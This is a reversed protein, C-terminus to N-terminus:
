DDPDSSPPPVGLEKARTQITSRALDLERAAARRNGKHRRLAKLTAEMEIQSLTKGPLAVYTDEDEALVSESTAHEGAVDFSLDAPGITPGRRLLLARALVNKLERVNGPWSHAELRTLAEPTLLPPAGRPAHAKAFREALVGVDGPRRRLPPLEVRIVALRYYLDERFTGQRVMARLDRHTAAVVRADVRFPRSSGVRKIEGLELTRLLKAQLDASLEGIEDLFITGGSAEEFAGKRANTAGTFAGKEHGFLESEILERSIAACNVPIFPGKSRESRAHIASAVLEKGTGTEGFIAVPAASPAVREILDFVERMCAAESVIGEFAAPEKGKAVEVGIETEGLRLWAGPTLEAHGVRIGNVWTGNTSGLDHLLIRGGDRVIRCHVGSAFADDLVVACGPDKGVVVEGELPVTRETGGSRVRLLVPEDLKRSAGVDRTFEGVLDNRTEGHTPGAAERFLARYDGLWLESGESLPTEDVTGSATRLGRGSLDIAVFRGDRREVLAQRRSVEPHPIAIDASAGRGIVMSHQDLLVRMLEEGRRFFILEAM